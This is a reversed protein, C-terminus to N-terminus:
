HRGDDNTRLRPIFGGESGVYDYVLLPSQAKPLLQHGCAVAIPAPVAPFLHIEPALPHDRVIRALLERYRTEFRILDDRTRLFDTSPDRGVLGLEYVTFADDISQPLREARIAGSLPLVVAVKSADHGRQAVNIMYDVAPGDAKWGWSETDRHLQYLEVPVKNSLRAGLYVLLPIPALAFVSLHHVTDGGMDRQFIREVDRRIKQRAVLFTDTEGSIDTLDIVVADRNAPYRPAVAKVIDPVPIDVTHGNIRAKLQVVFTRQERPLGTIFHIRQEHEAKFSELAERPYADPHDDILKHCTPCLFLLNALSNINSPRTAGGRPGRRSFAVIHAVQAFNGGTFTLHHELLFRNCGPFECRGGARVALELRTGEGVKRTVETVPSYPASAGPKARATPRAPLAKKASKKATKDRM